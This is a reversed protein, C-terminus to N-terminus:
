DVYVINLEHGGSQTHQTMMPLAKTQDIKESLIMTGLIKWTLGWLKGKSVILGLGLEISNL